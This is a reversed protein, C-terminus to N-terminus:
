GLFYPLANEDEIKKFNPETLVPIKQYRLNKTKLYLNWEKHTKFAQSLKQFKYFVTYQTHSSLNFYM